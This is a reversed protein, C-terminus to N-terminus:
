PLQAHSNSIKSQPTLSPLDAMALPYEIVDRHACPIAVEQDLMEVPVLERRVLTRLCGTDLLIDTVPNEEVTGTRCVAVNSTM